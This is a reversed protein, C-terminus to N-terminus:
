AAVQELSRAVRERAGEDAIDYVPIDLAKAIRIAQGTGGAGTAQETWCILFAVPENLYLGLVVHANRAHLMREGRSLHEWHPHHEAAVDHAEGIPSDVITRATIPVQPEFRPWPLYVEARHQAGREFAQDAGPAHGTRLTWRREALQEALQTMFKLVPRPAKRSGVGAYARYSM